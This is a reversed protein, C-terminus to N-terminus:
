FRIFGYPLSYPTTNRSRLSKTIVANNKKQMVILHDQKKEYDYLMIISWLFARAERKKYRKDIM